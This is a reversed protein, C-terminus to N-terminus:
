RVIVLPLADGRADASHVQLVYVGAPLVLSNLDISVHHEGPEEDPVRHSYVKRGLLDTVTITVSLSPQSTKIILEVRSKAPNPFASLIELGHGRTDVSEAGTSLACLRDIVMLSVDDDILKTACGLSGPGSLESAALVYQEQDADFYHRSHVNVSAHEVVFSGVVGGTPSYERILVGDQSAGDFEFFPAAIVIGDEELSSIEPSRSSVVGTVSRLWSLTGSQGFRGVFVGNDTSDQSGSFQVSGALGTFYVSQDPGVAMDSIWGSANSQSVM